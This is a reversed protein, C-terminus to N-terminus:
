PARWGGDSSVAAGNMNSTEDSALWSILTVIEDPQAVREALALFSAQREYGWESL